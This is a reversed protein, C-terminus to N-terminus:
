PNDETPGTAQNAGGAYPGRSTSAPEAGLRLAMDTPNFWNFDTSPFVVDQLRLNKAAELATLNAGGPGALAQNLRRTGEAEANKLLVIGEAEKQKRYLDADARRQIAYQDAKTKFEAIRLDTEANRKTIQAETEQRITRLKVDTEQRIMDVKGREEAARTKSQELAVMQDAIKKQKILNEYAPDFELTIVLYDVLEIGRKLLRANLYERAQERLAEREDPNYFDETGLQGFIARATEIVLDRVLRQHQTGIGSDQVVKHAQGEAIRYYVVVDMRVRDGDSSTIAIPDETLRPPLAADRVFRMQQVTRPFRHWTELPWLNRYFGPDYDKEVVGKSSGFNITRVGIEDPKIKACASGLVAILILALQVAPSRKM